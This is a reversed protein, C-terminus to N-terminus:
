KMIIECKRMENDNENENMIIIENWKENMIWKWMIMMIVEDNIWWKMEYKWWMWKVNNENENDNNNWIIKMIIKNM